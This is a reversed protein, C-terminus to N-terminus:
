LTGALPPRPTRPAVEMLQIYVGTIVGVGSPDEISKWFLMCSSLALSAGLLLLGITKKNKM